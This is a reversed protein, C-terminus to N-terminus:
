IIEDARRHYIDFMEKRNTSIIINAIIIVVLITICLYLLNPKNINM